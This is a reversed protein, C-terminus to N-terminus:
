AYRINRDSGDLKWFYQTKLLNKGYGTSNEISIDFFNLLTLSSHCVELAQNVPVNRHCHKLFTM